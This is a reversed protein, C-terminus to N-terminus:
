NNNHLLQESAGSVSLRMSDAPLANPASRPQMKEDVCMMTAAFRV